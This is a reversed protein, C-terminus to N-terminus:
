TLNRPTPFGSWVRSDLVRGGARKSVRRLSDEHPGIPTWNGWQKFHFPVRAKSCQDRLARAWRPAMPRAAKGSEGGVIVWNVRLPSLWRSLDVPGLLPECSVFHVVATHKLLAELRRAAYEQLEVTTGLWVNRPFRGQWADPCHINEPRKTLLLWDLQPTEEILEFLRGREEAIEPRDEFVDSMSACFVRDRRNAAIAARNWRLPERWHAEGFTRRSATPGWLQQGVRRAWAEAYCNTCAPSVKLCGWWPNFTHDTWEIASHQGM